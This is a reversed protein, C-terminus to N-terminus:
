MTELSEKVDKQLDEFNICLSVVHSNATLRSDTSPRSNSTKDIKM